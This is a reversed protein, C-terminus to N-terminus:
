AEDKLLMMAGWLMMWIGASEGNENVLIGKPMNEVWDCTQCRMDLSEYLDTSIIRQLGVGTRTDGHPFMDEVEFDEHKLPYERIAFYRKRTIDERM